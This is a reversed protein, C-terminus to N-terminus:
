KAPKNLKKCSRGEERQQNSTKELFLMKKQEEQFVVIARRVPRAFTLLVM